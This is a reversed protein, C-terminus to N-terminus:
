ILDVQCIYKFNRCPCIEPIWIKINSKFDEISELIKSNNPLLGWIKPGKFVFSNLDYHVIKMSKITFGQQNRLNYSSIKKLPFVENLYNTASETYVRSIKTVPIQVNKHHISVSNTLNLLEDYSPHSVNCIVCLFREQLRKIQKVVKQSYNLM